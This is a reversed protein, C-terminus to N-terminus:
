AEGLLRCELMGDDRAPEDLPTFRGIDHQGASQRRGTLGHTVIQKAACTQEPSFPKHLGGRNKRGFLQQLFDRKSGLRSPMVVDVPEEPGSNTSVGGYQKHSGMLWESNPVSLLFELCDTAALIPPKRKRPYLLVTM